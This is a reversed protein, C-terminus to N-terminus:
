DTPTWGAKFDKLAAQFDDELGKFSKAEALKDRLEKTTTRM